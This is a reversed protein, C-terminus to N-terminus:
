EPFSVNNRRAEAIGEPSLSWFSKKAIDGSLLGRRVLEQVFSEKVYAGKALQSATRQETKAILAYVREQRRKFNDLAFVTGMKVVYEMEELKEIAKLHTENRLGSLKRWEKQTLASGNTRIAALAREESDTLEENDHGHVVGSSLRVSKAIDNFEVSVAFDEPSVMDGPKTCRVEVIKSTNSVNKKRAVFACDVQDLIAMSGRFEAWGEDKEKKSHHIWIVACGTEESFEAALELPVIAEGSDNENAGPNARRLSDVIVLDLRQKKLAEWFQPDNPKLKPFVLAGLNPNKGAGLMFLRRAVNHKGTEFDVIGVRGKKTSYRGLWSRGEAVAIAMDYLLWTKLSDASAYLMAVCGRVFLQDVIFEQPPPETDWAGWSFPLEDEEADNAVRQKKKKLYTTFWDRVRQWSERYVLPAGDLRWAITSKHLAENIKHDLEKGEWPPECRANWESTAERVMSEDTLGFYRTAGAFAAMTVNGGGQGQAAIPHGELWVRAAAIRQERPRDAYMAIIDETLPEIEKATSAGERRLIDGLNDPLVVIPVDNAITYHSKGGPHWSGPAYAVGTSARVDVGEHVAKASQGIPAGSALYYRHYGRGSGTRVRFTDPVGLRSLEAVLWAEAEDSDTDIMVLGSPGCVVAAGYAEGGVRRWEGPAIDKYGTITVRRQSLGVCTLTEPCRARFREFEARDFSPVTAEEAKKAAEAMHGQRGTACVHAAVPGEPDRCM